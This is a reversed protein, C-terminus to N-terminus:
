FSGTPKEKSSSISRRNGHLIHQFHFCTNNKPPFIFQEATAFSLFPHFSSPAKSAQPSMGEWAKEWIQNPGKTGAPNGWSGGFPDASPCTHIQVTKSPRNRCMKDSLGSKHTHTIHTSTVSSPLTSPLTGQASSCLPVPARSVRLCEGEGSLSVWCKAM